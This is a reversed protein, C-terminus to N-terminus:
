RPKIATFKLVVILSCRELVVLRLNHQSFSPELWSWFAKGYAWKELAKNNFYCIIIETLFVNFVSTLDTCFWNIELSIQRPFNPWKKGIKKPSTLGLFKWSIGAFNALKETFRDKFIGRFKVKKGHGLLLGSFLQQKVLLFSFTKFKSVLLTHVGIDTEIRANYVVTGTANWRPNWILTRCYM